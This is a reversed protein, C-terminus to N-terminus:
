AYAQRSSGSEGGGVFGGSIVHIEGVPPRPQEKPQAQRNAKDDAKDVLLAENNFRKLYARLTEGERQKINLLYTAPRHQCRGRYFHEM